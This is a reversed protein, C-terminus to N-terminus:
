VDFSNALVRNFGRVKDATLQGPSPQGPEPVPVVTQQQPQPQSPASHHQSEEVKRSKKAESDDHRTEEQVSIYMHTVTNNNKLTVRNKSTVQMRIFTKGRSTISM